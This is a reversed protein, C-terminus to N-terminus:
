KVILSFARLTGQSSVLFLQHGLDETNQISLYV